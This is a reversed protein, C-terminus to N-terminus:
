VEFDKKTPTEGSAKVEACYFIVPALEATLQVNKLCQFSVSVKEATFVEARFQDPAYDTFREQELIERAAPVCDFELMKKDVMFQSLDVLRHLFSTVRGGAMFKKIERRLAEALWRDILIVSEIAAAYMEATTTAQAAIQMAESINGGFVQTVSSAETISMLEAMLAGAETYATVVDAVTLADAMDAPTGQGAAVVEEVALADSRLCDAVKWGNQTARAISWAYGMGYASRESSQDNDAALEEEGAGGYAQSGTQADTAEASDTRDGEETSSSVGVPTEGVAVSEAREASLPSTSAGTLADVPTLSGATSAAATALWGDLKVKLVLAMLYIVPQLSGDASTATISSSGWPIAGVTARIAWGYGSSYAGGTVLNPQRGVDCRLEGSIGGGAGYTIGVVMDGENFSISSLTLSSTNEMSVPDIVSRFPDGSIDVDTFQCVKFIDVYAEVTGFNPNPFNWALTGSEPNKIYAVLVNYGAANTNGIHVFPTGNLTLTYNGEQIWAPTPFMTNYVFLMLNTDPHVTVPTEGVATYISDYIQYQRSDSFMMKTPIDAYPGNINRAPLTDSTTREVTNSAAINGEVDVIELMNGNYPGSDVDGAIDAAVLMEDTIDAAPPTFQGVESITLVLEEVFDIDVDRPEVGCNISLGIMACKQADALTITTEGTSAPRLYGSDLYMYPWPSPGLHSVLATQAGSNTVDALNSAQCFAGLAMGSPDSPTVTISKDSTTDTTTADASTDLIPESGDVGRLFVVSLLHGYSDLDADFSWSFVQEGSQPLIIKACVLLNDTYYVPSVSPNSCYTTTRTVHEFTEGGIAITYNGSDFYYTPPEPDYVGRYGSYGLGWFVLALTAGTPVTITTSSNVLSTNLTFVDGVVNVLAVTSITDAPTGEEAVEGYFQGSNISGDCEAAIAGASESVGVSFITQPALALTIFAATTSTASTVSTTGTDGAVAKGGYYLGLGGGSGANTTQDHRKTFNSLNANSAATLSTNETTADRDQAICNLILCNPITTTVAPCSWDTSAPTNVSGATVNFPESPEFGRFCFIKGINLNGSDAISVASQTGSVIKWFVALRVGGASGATGTGQPSNAVQTWGDPTTIDENATSVLLIFIDGNQYYGVPVPVSIAGTGSTFDGQHVYTPIAGM